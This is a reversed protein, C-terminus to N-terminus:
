LNGGRHGRAELSRRLSRLVLRAEPLSHAADPALAVEVVGDRVRVSYTALRVAPDDLCHGTALDFVQKYVPSSVTPRDGRSGIIGRSIVMAGSFPDHNCLAYLGDDASRFIAVQAGDVLAAVGRDVPLHEWPSIQRFTSM